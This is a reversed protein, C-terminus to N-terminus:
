GTCAARSSRYAALEDAFRDRDTAAGTLVPLTEDLARDTTVRQALLDDMIRTHEELARELATSREALADAEALAAACAESATAAPTGTTGTM